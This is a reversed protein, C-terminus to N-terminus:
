ELQTEPVPQELNLNHEIIIKAGEETIFKPTGTFGECDSLNDDSLNGHYM